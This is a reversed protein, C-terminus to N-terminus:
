AKKAEDWLGFGDVVLKVWILSGFTVELPIGTIAWTATVSLSRNVPTPRERRM